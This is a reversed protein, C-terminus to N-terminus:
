DMKAPPTAAAATRARAPKALLELEWVLEWAQRYDDLTGIHRAIGTRGAQPIMPEAESLSLYAVGLDSGSLRGGSNQEFKSLEVVASGLADYLMSGLRFSLELNQSHLREAGLTVDGLAVLELGLSIWRRVKDVVERQKKIDGLDVQDAVMVKNAVEVLEAEWRSALHADPPAKDALHHIVRQLFLYDRGGPRVVPAADPSPAAVPATEGWSKRWGDVLGKVDFEVPYYVTIALSPSPIGLGRLRSERGEIADAEITGKSHMRVWGLLRIWLNPDLAYLRELFMQVVPNAGKVWDPDLYYTDQIMFDKEFKVHKKLALALLDANIATLIRFIQSEDCELFLQLWDTFKRSDLSEGHWCDHDLMFNIQNETAVEVIEQSEWKGACLVTRHLELEPLSQVLSAHNEPLLLLDLRRDLPACLVVETQEGLPLTRFLAEAKPAAAKILGLLVEARAAPTAAQLWAPPLDAPPPASVGDGTPSGTEQWGTQIPDSNM